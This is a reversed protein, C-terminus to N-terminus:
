GMGDLEHVCPRSEAALYFARVKNSLVRIISDRDEVGLTPNITVGEDTIVILDADRGTARVRLLKRAM